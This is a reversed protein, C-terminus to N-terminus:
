NKSSEFLESDVSFIKVHYEFNDDKSDYIKKLFEYKDEEYFVENLFEPRDKKGDLVLHTIKGRSSDDLFSYLTKYSSPDKNTIQRPHHLEDRSYPRKVREMDKFFAKYDSWTKPADLSVVFQVEPYYDNIIKTNEVVYRAIFAAERQNKNDFNFENFLISTTIIIIFCAVFVSKKVRSKKIFLNLSCTAFICFFPFLFYLYKTELLPYSYAYLAPIAIATMIIIIALKNADLNRCFLIFGPPVLLIFMPILVWGLYKIFYELSTLMLKIPSNSKSELSEIIATESDSSREDLLFYTKISKYLKVFVSDYMGVYEQYIMLPTLVLVYVLLAVIYKPIVLKENRFRLIYAISIGIFLFLGEPRIYTAISSVLFSLYIIKRNKNLLLLTTVVICLIFLPETGGLISNQILRPEVAFLLVGLLSYQKEFFNRILFYLPFITISSIVITSIKQLQMYSETHEFSFFPFLWSLFISWGPKAIGYNEPLKGITHIDVAYSFSDVADLSIPITEDFYQLRCILGIILIGCLLYTSNKIPFIMNKVSNLRAGKKM